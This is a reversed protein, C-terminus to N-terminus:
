APRAQEGQTLAEFWRLVGQVSLTQRCTILTACTKCSSLDSSSPPAKAQDSAQGPQSSITGFVLGSSTLDWTAM